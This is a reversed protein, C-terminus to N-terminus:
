WPKDGALPQGEEERNQDATGEKRTRTGGGVLFAQGFPVSM